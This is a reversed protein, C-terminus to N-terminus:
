RVTVVNLEKREKPTSVEVEVTGSIGASHILFQKERKKNLSFFFVRTKVNLDWHDSEAVKVLIIVVKGRSIKILEGVVASGTLEVRVVRGLVVHKGHVLIELRVDYAFVDIIQGRQVL